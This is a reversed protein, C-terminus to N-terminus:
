LKCLGKTMKGAYDLYPVPPRRRHERLLFNLIDMYLHMLGIGKGAEDLFGIRNAPNFVGRGAVYIRDIPEAVMKHESRIEDVRKLESQMWDTEALDSAYAFIGHFYRASGDSPDGEKRASALRRKYPRLARLKFAARLSKGLEVRTLLSKVEISAFLAEAPLIYSSGQYLAFSDIQDYIMLDLQPSQREGLDVAEGAVVGFRGPLHQKFFEIVPKERETGKTAAHRFPSSKLLDTSFQLLAADFKSGFADVPNTRRRKLPTTSM